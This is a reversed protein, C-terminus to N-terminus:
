SSSCAAPTSPCWSSWAESSPPGVFERPGLRLQRVVRIGRRELAQAYLEALIESETFDFSAVTVADDGTALSPDSRRRRRTSASGFAPPCSSWRWSRGGAGCRHVTSWPSPDNGHPSSPPGRFRGRPPPPRARSRRADGALRLDGLELGVQEPQHVARGAEEIRDEPRQHLVPGEDRDRDHRHDGERQSAPPEGGPREHGADGHVVERLDHLEDDVAPPGRGLEVLDLM